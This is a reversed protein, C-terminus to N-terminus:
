ELMVNIYDFVSLHETHKSLVMYINTFFPFIYKMKNLNKITM